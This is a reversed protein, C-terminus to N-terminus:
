GAPEHKFFYDTAELAVRVSPTKEYVGPTYPPTKPRTARISYPSEYNSGPRQQRKPIPNRQGYTQKPSKGGSLPLRDTREKADEKEKTFQVTKPISVQQSTEESFSSEQIDRKQRTDEERKAREYEILDSDRREKKRQSVTKASYLKGNSRSFDTRRKDNDMQVRQSKILMTPLLERTKASSLNGNSRSFDTRGGFEPEIKDCDTLRAAPISLLVENFERINNPDFFM